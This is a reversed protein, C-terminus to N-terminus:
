YKGDTRLVRHGLHAAVASVFQDSLMPWNWFTLGLYGVAWGDQNPWLWDNFGVAERCRPCPVTGPGGKTWGIAACLFADWEDATGWTEENVLALVTGCRPCGARMPTEMTHFVTRGAQVEVGDGRVANDPESVATPWRPGPLHGFKFGLVSETRASAIVGADALWAVLRDALGAAEDERAEVDAIIQFHDGV